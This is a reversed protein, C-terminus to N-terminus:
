NKKPPMKDRVKKILANYYSSREPTKALLTEYIKIAKVYNNQAIYITALTETALEDTDAVSQRAMNIPSYFEVKPKSIRPQTEIFKELIEDAKEKEIKQISPIQTTGVADTDVKTLKESDNNKSFNKAKKLWETFSIETTNNIDDKYNFDEIDLNTEIATTLISVDVNSNISAELVTKQLSEFDINKEILSDVKPHKTISVDEVEPASSDISEYNSLLFESVNVISKSFDSVTKEGAITAKLEEVDDHSLEIDNSEHYEVKPTITFHEVEANMIKFEPEIVAGVINEAEVIEPIHNDKVIDTLLNEEVIVDDIVANVIEVKDIEIPIELKKEIADVKEIEQLLITTVENEEIDNIISKTIESDTKQEEIIKLEPETHTNQKVSKDVSEDVKKEQFNIYNYLSKRSPSLTATRKLQQQYQFDQNQYYHKTLAFSAAAFYPYTEIVKKLWDAKEADIITNDGLIDLLIAKNM